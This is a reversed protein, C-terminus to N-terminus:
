GKLLHYIGIGSTGLFLGNLITELSFSFNHLLINLFVGCLLVLFIANNKKIIKKLENSCLINLSLCCSIITPNIMSEIFVKTEIKTRGTKWISKSANSGFKIMAWEGISSALCFLYKM